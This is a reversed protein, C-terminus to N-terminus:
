IKEYEFFTRDNFIRDINKCSKWKNRFWEKCMKVRKAGAGPMYIDFPIVNRFAVGKYIYPWRWDKCLKGGPNWYANMYSWTRGFTLPPNTVCIYVKGSLPLLSVSARSEEERERERDREAEMYGGKTPIKVRLFNVTINGEVSVRDLQSTWPMVGSKTMNQHCRLCENDENTRLSVFWNSRKRRRRRGEGREPFPHDNSQSRNLSSNRPKKPHFMTANIPLRQTKVALGASFKYSSIQSSDGSSSRKRAYEQFYELSISLWRELKPVNSSCEREM